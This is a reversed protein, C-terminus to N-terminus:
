SRHFFSLGSRQGRSLRRCSSSFIGHGEFSWTQTSYNLRLVPPGANILLCGRTWSTAARNEDLARFVSRTHRSAPQNLLMLSTGLILLLSRADALTRRNVAVIVRCNASRARMRRRKTARYNGLWKRERERERERKRQECFPCYGRALMGISYNVSNCTCSLHLSILPASFHIKHKPLNPVAMQQVNTQSFAFRPNSARCNELPPQKDLM